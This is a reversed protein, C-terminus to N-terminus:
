TLGQTEGLPSKDGLHFSFLFLLNFDARKTKFVNESNLCFEM